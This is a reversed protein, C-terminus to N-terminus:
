DHSKIGEFNAVRKCLSRAAECFSKDIEDPYPDGAVFEVRGMVENLEAAVAKKWQEDEQDCFYTM